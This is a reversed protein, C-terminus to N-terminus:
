PSSLSAIAPRFPRPRWARGATWARGTPSRRPWTRVACPPRVTSIPSPARSSSFATIAARRCHSGSPPKRVLAQASADPAALDEIARTTAAANTTVGSLGIASYREAQRARAAAVRRAVETSGETPAPLILDAASVAPVEIQLDIRDLLPGSLRAQYQSACRQVPGRGCSYGPDLAHGCRCPNMAAVLQFRAPYVIRHNARAIAVEGTEMPQRLSDLM